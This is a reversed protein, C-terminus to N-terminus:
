FDAEGLLSKPLPAINRDRLCINLSAFARRRMSHPTSLLSEIAKARLAAEGAQRDSIIAAYDALTGGNAVLESLEGRMTMLIRKLQRIETREVGTVTLPRKLDELASEPPVSRVVEWGPQAYAALYRDLASPLTEAWETATQAVIFDEDGVLQQRVIPTDEPEGGFAFVLAAAVAAASLAIVSGLPLWRRWTSPDDGVVRYPRVGQKRLQTYADARDRACIEGTRNENDKTQYFYTYKV